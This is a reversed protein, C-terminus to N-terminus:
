QAGIQKAYQWAIASMQRITAEFTTSEDIEQRCFQEIHPVIALAADVERSAGQSYAGVRVLDIVEAYTAMVERVARASEQHERSTVDRFVRSVSPLVDVAPFQGREALERSLVIHGDALSRVSDAIPEEMEDGEVLVTIIATIVGHENTGFRELTNSLLNFVSPPYGRSTPPEDLQLGIERQAVAMRTISDLLCLVNAGRDRFYEAVTVSTRVAQLRMLPTEDSTAVVVVSKALGTPGLCEDIFPLVERGREGVLCIVNLEASAGKAIEGLLTSKGVGSGAMLSVRQGQGITLLGDIVRQGTVLPANIKRRLMPSPHQNNLTRGACGVLPGKRDIPEGLGNVVRGLLGPGCPVSLQQGLSIVQDGPRLGTAERFPMLRVDHRDFGIVQALIPPQSRSRIECLEDLAAPVSATITGLASRVEGVTQTVNLKSIRTTIEELNLDLM